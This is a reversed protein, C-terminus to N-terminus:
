KALHLRRYHTFDARSAESLPEPLNDLQFWGFASMKDTEVARPVQSGRIMAVFPTTQWREGVEPLVHEVGPLREMIDIEIGLEERAERIAAAEPEEGLEQEGGVNEWYGIQNRAGEGRQTLLFEGKDNVIIVGVARNTARPEPEIQEM